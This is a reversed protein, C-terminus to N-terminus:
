VPSASFALMDCIVNMIVDYSAERIRPFVLSKGCQNIWYSAPIIDNGFIALMNQLRIRRQNDNQTMRLLDGAVHMLGTDVTLVFESGAMIEVLRDLRPCDVTWVGNSPQVDGNVVFPQVPVGNKILKKSILQWDQHELGKVIGIKLNPFTKTIYEIVDSWMNPNLLKARDGDTADYIILIDFLSQTSEPVKLPSPMEFEKIDFFLQLFLQQTFINPLDTFLRDFRKDIGTWTVYQGLVTILDKRVQLNFDNSPFLYFGYNSALQCLNLNQYLQLDTPDYVVLQDNPYQKKINGILQVFSKQVIHLNKIEEPTQFLSPNRTLFYVEKESSNAAVALAMRANIISDGLGDQNAIFIIIKSEKLKTKFEDITQKLRWFFVESESLYKDYRGLGVLSPDAQLLNKHSQDVLPSFEAVFRELEIPTLLPRHGDLLFTSNGCFRMGGSLKHPEITQFPKPEKVNLGEQNLPPRLKNRIEGIFNIM